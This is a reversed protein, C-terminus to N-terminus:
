CAIPVPGGKARGRRWAVAAVLAITALALVGPAPTEAVSAVPAPVFTFDDLVFSAGDVAGQITLSSFGGAFAVEILENPTSGPEGSTALNSAFLSAATAVPALLTDLATLTLPVVYTFIGSVSSVPTDFAITIAGLDDSVVTMGSNPPFELENLSGGVAGSILATANTFTLGAFQTTVPETDALGEFDLTAAPAPRGALLAGMALLCVIVTKM